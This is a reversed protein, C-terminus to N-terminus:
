DVLRPGERAAVRRQYGPQPDVSKSRIRASHLFPEACSHWGASLGDRLQWPAGNAAPQNSAGNQVANRRGVSAFFHLVGPDCAYLLAQHNSPLWWCCSARLPTYDYQRDSAAILTFRPRAKLCASFLPMRMTM